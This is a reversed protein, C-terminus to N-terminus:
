GNTAETALQDQAAQIEEPAFDQLPQETDAREIIIKKEQSGTDVARLAEKAAQVGSPAPSLIEMAPADSPPPLLEMMAGNRPYEMEDDREIARALEVSKPLLKCIRRIVTKKVMEEYDTKWPGNNGAKSRGRIREVENMTMVAAQVGGDKMNAIAYTFLPKGPDGQLFPSHWLVLERGFKVEHPDREHVVHAELSLLRGTRHILEVFGQYGVIGQCVMAGQKNDRFPILYYHGMPSNPELGLEACFMICELISQPTCQMLLPNRGAAVLLVKIMRDVTMHKPLVQAISQRRSEILQQFTWQPKTAITQKNESM